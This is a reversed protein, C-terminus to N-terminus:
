FLRIISIASAIRLMASIKLAYFFYSHDRMKAAHGGYCNLNARGTLTYDAVVSWLLAPVSVPPNSAVPTSIDCAVQWDADPHRVQLRFHTAMSDPDRAADLGTLEREDLAVM